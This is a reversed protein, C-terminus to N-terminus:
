HLIEETLIIFYLQFLSRGQTSIPEHPIKPQPSVFLYFSNEKENRKSFVNMCM